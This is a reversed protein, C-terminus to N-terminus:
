SREEQVWARVRALHEEEQALAARFDAALEDQGMTEALKVLLAWADDGAMGAVLIAELSELPVSAKRIDLTM